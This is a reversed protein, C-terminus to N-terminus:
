EWGGVSLRTPVVWVWWGRTVAEALRCGARRGWFAVGSIGFVLALVPLVGPGRKRPTVRKRLRASLAVCRVKSSEIQPFSMRSNSRRWRGSHRRLRRRGGEVRISRRDADGRHGRLRPVRVSGADDAAPGYHLSRPEYVDASLNVVRSAGTPVYTVEVQLTNELGKVAGSDGHHDDAVATSDGHHDDGGEMVRTVRLEVGNIFGEYAPENIWGINFNYDGVERGEHALAIGLTLSLMAAVAAALWYSKNFVPQM